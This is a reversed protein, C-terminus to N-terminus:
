EERDRVDIVLIFKTSTENGIQVTNLVEIAYEIEEDESCNDIATQIADEVAKPGLDSYVKVSKLM